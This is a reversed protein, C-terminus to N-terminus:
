NQLIWYAAAAALSNNRIYGHIKIEYYIDKLAINYHNKM